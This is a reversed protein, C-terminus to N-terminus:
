VHSDVTKFNLNKFEGGGNGDGHTTSIVSVFFFPRLFLLKLFFVRLFAVLFVFGFFHKSIM